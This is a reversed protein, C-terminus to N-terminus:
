RSLTKLHSFQLVLSEQQLKLLGSGKFHLSTHSEEFDINSFEMPAKLAKLQDLNFTKGDIVAKTKSDVKFKHATTTSIKFPIKNFSIETGPCRINGTLDTEFLGGDPLYLSDKAFGGSTCGQAAETNLIIEQGSLDRYLEYQSSINKEYDRVSIKAAEELSAFNYARKANELRKKQESDDLGLKNKLLETLSRGEAVTSKWNVVSLQDLAIGLIAGVQYHRWKISNLVLETSDKLNKEARKTLFEIGNFAPIINPCRIYTQTQVYEATGEMRQQLNEWKISDADLVRHRESNVAAFDKLLDAERTKLYDLLIFNELQILAQNEIDLHKRYEGPVIGQFNEFQFVHFREHVLIIFSREDIQGPIDLKIVFANKGEFPHSFSLPIDKLGWFDQGSYYYSGAREVFRTWRSDEGSIGFGYVHGNQLHVLTSGSLAYGPWIDNTNKNESLCQMTELIGRIAAKEHFPTSAFAAFGILFFAGVIMLRKM